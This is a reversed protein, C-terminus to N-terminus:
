RLLFREQWNNDLHENIITCGSIKCLLIIGFLWYLIQFYKIDVRFRFKMYRITVKLLPSNGGVWICTSPYLINLDILYMTVASPMLHSNWPDESIVMIFPHGKDCYTHCALSAESSLLWLHRAYTLIQLGEGAITVNGFSHFNELPVFFDFALFVFCGIM